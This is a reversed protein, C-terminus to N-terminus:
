KAIFDVIAWFLPFRINKGQRLLTCTNYITYEILSAKTSTYVDTKATRFVPKKDMYPPTDHIAGPTYNYACSRIKAV